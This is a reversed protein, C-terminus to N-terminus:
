CREKVNINFTGATEETGDSWTIELTARHLRPRLDLDSLDFLVAGLLVDPITGPVVLCATATNIHLAVTCDTLDYPTGDEQRLTVVLPLTDGRVYTETAM